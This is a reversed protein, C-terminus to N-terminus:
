KGRFDTEDSDLKGINCDECLVQLNDFELALEPYKSKPKIHDVHLVVGHKDPTRGCCMCRRGYHQLVQYRLDRWEFSKYFGVAKSGKRRNEFTQHILGKRKLEWHIKRLFEVTKIRGDFDYQVHENVLLRLRKSPLLPNKEECKEVANLSQFYKTLEWQINSPLRAM